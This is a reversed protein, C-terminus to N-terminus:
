LFCVVIEAFYVSVKDFGIFNFFLINPIKEVYVRFVDFFQDNWFFKCRFITAFLVVIKIFLWCCRNLSPVFFRKMLKSLINRFIKGFKTNSNLLSKPGSSWIIGSFPSNSFVSRRINARIRSPM